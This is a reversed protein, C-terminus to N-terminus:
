TLQNSVHQGALAAHVHHCRKSVGIIMNPWRKDFEKIHLKIQDPRLAHLLSTKLAMRNAM